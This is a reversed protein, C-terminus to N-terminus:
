DNDEVKGEDGSVSSDDPLSTDIGSVEDRI